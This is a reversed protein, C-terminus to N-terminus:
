MCNRVVNSIDRGEFLTPVGNFAETSNQQGRITGGERAFIAEGVSLHCADGEGCKSPRPLRRPVEMMSVLPLSKILLYRAM